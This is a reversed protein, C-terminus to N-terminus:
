LARRQSCQKIISVVQDAIQQAVEQSDAEFTTRSSWYQRSDIIKSGNTVIWEGKVKREENLTRLEFHWRDTRPMESMLVLPPNSDLDALDLSQQVTYSLGGSHAVLKWKLNCSDFKVPVFQGNVRPSRNQVVMRPKYHQVLMGKIKIVAENLADDNTRGMQASVNSNCLFFVIFILLPCKQM